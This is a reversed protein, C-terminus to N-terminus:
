KSFYIAAANTALTLAFSLVISGGIIQWKFALIKDVKEEIRDLRANLLEITNM